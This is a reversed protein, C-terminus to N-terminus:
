EQDASPQGEQDRVVVMDRYRLDIFSPGQPPSEALLADLNAAKAALSASDGIGIEWPRDALVLVVGNVGLRYHDVRGFAFPSNAALWEHIRVADDFADIGPADPPLRDDPGAPKGLSTRVVLRPLSAMDGRAPGLVTGDRAVLLGVDAADVRGWAPRPVIEVEVADPLIRRIRATQVQPIAELGGQLVEVDLLLLNADRLPELRARVAARLDTPVSDLLLRRLRFTDNNHVWYHGAWALGGGVALGSVVLLLQFFVALSSRRRMAPRNHVRRLFQPPRGRPGAVM